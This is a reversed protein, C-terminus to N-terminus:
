LMPFEMVHGTILSIENQFVESDTSSKNSFKRLITGLYLKTEHKLTHRHRELHLSYFENDAYHINM